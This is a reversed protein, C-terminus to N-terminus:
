LTLAWSPLSFAHYYSQSSVDQDCASASAPFPTLISVESCVGRSM